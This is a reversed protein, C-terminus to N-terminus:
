TNVKLCFVTRIDMQCSSAGPRHSLPVQAWESMNGMSLSLCGYIPPTYWGNSIPPKSGHFKIVKWETATIAM